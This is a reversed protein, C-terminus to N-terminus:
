KNRHLRINFIIIFIILLGFAIVTVLFFGIVKNSSKSPNNMNDLSEETMEETVEETTAATIEETSAETTGETKDQYVSQDDLGTEESTYNVPPNGYGEKGDSSVKSDANSSKDSYAEEGAEEDYASQPGAESQSDGGVEFLYGQDIGTKVNSYMLSMAEQLQAYTLYVGDGMLYDRLTNVHEPYAQYTKGDYTFTGSAASILEAENANIDGAFVMQKSIVVSLAALLCFIKIKTSYKDGFFNKM